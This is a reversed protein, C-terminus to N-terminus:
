LFSFSSLVTPTVSADATDAVYSLHIATARYVAYKNRASM